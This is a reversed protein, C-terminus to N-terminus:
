KEPDIWVGNPNIDKVVKVVELTYNSQLTAKISSIDIVLKLLSIKGQNSIDNNERLNLTKLSANSQLADVLIEVGDDDIKNNSLDLTTLMSDGGKLLKAVERCGDANINNRSLILKM